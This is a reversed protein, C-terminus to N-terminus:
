CYYFLGKKTSGDQEVKRRVLLVVVFHSTLKSESYAFIRHWMNQVAYPFSALTGLMLTGLVGWSCTLEHVEPQLTM